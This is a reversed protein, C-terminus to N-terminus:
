SVMGEMWEEFVFVVVEDVCDVNMVLMYDDVCWVFVVIFCVFCGEVFDCGILLLLVLVVGFGEIVM